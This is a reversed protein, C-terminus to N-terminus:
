NFSGFLSMKGECGNVFDQAIPTLDLHDLREKYVYLVMLNNLHEQFMTTRLYNRIYRLTSFVRERSASTALIVMLLKVFKIVEGMLAKKAPTLSRCYMFVDHINAQGEGDYNTCRIYLHTCLSERSIDSRYFQVVTALEDSFDVDTVTKLLLSECASHIKYDERDFRTKICSTVLDLAEYYVMQHADDTTPFEAQATCSVCEEIRYPAKRRRPLQPENM